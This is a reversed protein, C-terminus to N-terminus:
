DGILNSKEETEVAELYQALKEKQISVFYANLRPAQSRQDWDFRAVEISRFPIKTSLPIMQIDLQDVPRYDGPPLSMSDTQFDFSLWKELFGDGSFYVCFASDAKARFQIAYKGSTDACVSHITAGNQRISITVDHFVSDSFTVKGRFEINLSDPNYDHQSFGSSSIFLVILVIFWRSIKYIMM